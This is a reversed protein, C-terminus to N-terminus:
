PGGGERSVWWGVCVRAYLSNFNRGMKQLGFVILIWLRSWNSLQAGLETFHKLLAVGCPNLGGENRLVQSVLDFFLAPYEKEM